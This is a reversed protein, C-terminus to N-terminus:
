RAHGNIAAIHMATKCDNNKTAAQIEKNMLAMVAEANGHFAAVHLLTNKCGSRADRIKEGWSSDRLM